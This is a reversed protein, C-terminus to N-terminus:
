EPEFNQTFNGYLKNLEDRKKTAENESAYLISEYDIIKKTSPTIVQDMPHKSFGTSPGWIKPALVHWPTCSILAGSAEVITKHTVPDELASDVIKCWESLSFKATSSEGAVKIIIKQFTEDWLKIISLWSDASIKKSVDLKQYTEGRPAWYPYPNKSSSDLSWSGEHIGECKM